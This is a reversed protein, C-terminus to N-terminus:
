LIGMSRFLRLNGTKAGHRQFYKRLTQIESYTLNGTNMRKVRAALNACSDKRERYTKGHTKLEVSDWIRCAPSFTARHFDEFSDFLRCYEAGQPGIYDAILMDCGRRFLGWLQSLRGGTRHTREGDARRLRRNTRGDVM